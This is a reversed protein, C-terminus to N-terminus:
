RDTCKLQCHGKPPGYAGWDPSYYPLGVVAYGFSALKPGFRESAGTGGDAGHLVIIVPRPHDGPLRYLRAAPFGPIDDIVVDSRAGLLRTTATAM